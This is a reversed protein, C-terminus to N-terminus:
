EALRRLREIIERAEGPSAQFDGRLLASALRESLFQSVGEGNMGLSEALDQVDRPTMSRYLDSIQTPGLNLNPKGKAFEILLTRQDSTLGKSAANRSEVVHDWGSNHHYYIRQMPVPEIGALSAYLFRDNRNFNYTTWIRSVQAKEFEALSGFRFGKFGEAKLDGLIDGLVNEGIRGILFGADRDGEKWLDYLNYAAEFWNSMPIMDGDSFGDRRLQEYFDSMYRTNFREPDQLVVSVYGLPIEGTDRQLVVDYHIDCTGDPIHSHNGRELGANRVVYVRQPSVEGLDIDIKPLSFITFATQQISDHGILGPFVIDSYDDMREFRGNRYVAELRINEKDPVLPHSGFFHIRDVSDSNEALVITYCGRRWVRPAVVVATLYRANEVGGEYYFGSYPNYKLGVYEGLVEGLQELFGLPQYQMMWNDFEIQIGVTMCNM